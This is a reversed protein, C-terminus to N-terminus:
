IINGNKDEIYPYNEDDPNNNNKQNERKVVTVGSHDEDEILSVDIEHAKFNKYQAEEINTNRIFVVGRSNYCFEDGEDIVERVLKGDVFGQLKTRNNGINYCRFRINHWEGDNVVVKEILPSSLGVRDGDEATPTGHKREKLFGTNGRHSNIFYYTHAQNPDAGHGDEHSRIGVTCGSYGLGDNGIRKYDVEIEANQWDVGVYCRPQNGSLKMIGDEVEMAGSGNFKTMEDHTDYVDATTTKKYSKGACKNEWSKADYNIFNIPGFFNYALNGGFILLVLGLGVLPLFKKQKKKVLTNIIFISGVVIVSIVGTSYLTSSCSVTDINFVKKCVLNLVFAIVPLGATVLFLLSKYQKKKVKKTKFLYKVLFIYAVIVVKIIITSTFTSSCSNLNLIDKFNGPLNKYLNNLIPGHTYIFCLYKKFM